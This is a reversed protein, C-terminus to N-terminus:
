QRGHTRYPQRWLHPHQKNEQTIPFRSLISTEVLFKHAMVTHTHHLISARPHLPHPDSSNHIAAAKDHIEPLNRNWDNFILQSDVFSHKLRGEREHFMM